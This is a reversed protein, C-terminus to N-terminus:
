DGRPCSSSSSLSSRPFPFPAAEVLPDPDFEPHPVGELPSCSAPRSGLEECALRFPFGVEFSLRVFSPPPPPLPFELAPFTMCTGPGAPEKHRRWFGRAENANTTPKAEHRPLPPPSPTVPQTTDPSTWVQSCRGNASMLAGWADLQPICLPATDGGTHANAVWGAHKPRPVKELEGLVLPQVVARSARDNTLVL